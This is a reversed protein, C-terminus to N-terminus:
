LKLESSSEKGAVTMCESRVPAAAAADGDPKSKSKPKSESKFKRSALEV